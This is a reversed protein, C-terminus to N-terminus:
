EDTFAKIRRKCVRSTIKKLKQVREALYELETRTIKYDKKYRADVYASRLLEFRKKETATAQPFVPLFAPDHGAAMHSLTQLDHTKPKYGTFVLEVASYYRETAQHLQFAAIKYDRKELM